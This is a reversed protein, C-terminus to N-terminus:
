ELEHKKLAWVHGIEFSPLTYTGIESRILRLVPFGISACMKRVQHFKGESIKIQIWTTPISKRSRIPPTRDQVSPPKIISADAPKLLVKKKKIRLQMPHRLPTLDKHSPEGEVQVLYTKQKHSEPNLLAKNLSPDDSLILLGESNKDLRGVPYVHPPFDHIDALTLQNPAERSFQSLYGFPKYIAFYKFHSVM